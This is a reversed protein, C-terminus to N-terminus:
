RLNREGAGECTSPVGLMRGCEGGVGEHSTDVHAERLFPRNRGRSDPRNLASRTM